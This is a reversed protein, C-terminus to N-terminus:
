TKNVWLGAIALVVFALEIVAGVRAAGREAWRARWRAIVPIRAVASGLLHLPLGVAIGGIVTLGVAILVTAAGPAVAALRGAEIAGVVLAAACVGVLARGLWRLPRM